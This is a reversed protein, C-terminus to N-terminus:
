PRSLLSSIINTIPLRALERQSTLNHIKSSFKFWLKVLGAYSKGVNQVNIKVSVSLGLKWAMSPVGSQLLCLGNYFLVAVLICVASILLDAM